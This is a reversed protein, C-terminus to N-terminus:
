YRPGCSDSVSPGTKACPDTGQESPYIGQKASRAICQLKAWPRLASVYHSPLDHRWKCHDAKMRCCKNNVIWHQCPPVLKMHSFPCNLGQCNIRACPIYEKAADRATQSAPRWRHAALVHQQARPCYMTVDPDEEVEEEAAAEGEPITAMPTASDANGEKEVRCM